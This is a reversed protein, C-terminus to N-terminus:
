LGVCPDNNGDRCHSLRFLLQRILCRVSPIWSFILLVAIAAVIAIARLTCVLAGVIGRRAGRFVPALCDPLFPALTQRIARRCVACFPQNTNRMMCNHEPRHVGCKFYRAGEFTGVTGALVTSARNDCQTCDPNSMTPVPTAALILDRWKVTTRNTDATVNPEAPEAGAYNDHGAEACGAWYPYEDALGFMSHGLEHIAVERWDAGGHSTVAVSGGSGGRLNSHVLVIIQHWGPVEQNALLRATQANITLLRRIRGDGCFTADFYTAPTAGTGACNMNNPDDAGSENSEVNLRYVNIACRLEDIPSFNFLRDVIQQAHQEFQALEANQYGESMILLNFRDAPSGNDIIKTTSVLNGDAVTM